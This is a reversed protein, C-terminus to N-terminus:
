YFLEKGGWTGNITGMLIKPVFVPATLPNFFWGPIQLLKENYFVTVSVTVQIYLYYYSYLKGSSGIEITIANYSVLSM